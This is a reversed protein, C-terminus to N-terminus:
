GYDVGNLKYTRIIRKKWADNIRHEVVARRKNYAHLIGQETILATHTLGAGSSFQMLAMRGPELVPRVDQVAHQNLGAILHKPNVKTTYTLDDWIPIGLERGCAVFLGICDMGRKDRGHHLYPVGLYQRATEILNDTAIM